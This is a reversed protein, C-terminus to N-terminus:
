PRDYGTPRLELTFARPDRSFYLGGRRSGQAPVYSIQASAREVVEGGRKLSGEIHVAAATSQGRNSAVFEVLYGGRVALTTDAVVYVEPPTTPIAFAEYLFHGVAGLVLLASLVALVWEGPSVDPAPRGGADRDPESRRPASPGSRRPENQSPM